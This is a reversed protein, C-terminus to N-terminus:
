TIKEQESDTLFPSTESAGTPHQENPDSRGQKKQQKSQDLLIEVLFWLGILFLLILFFWAALSLYQLYFLETMAIVSCLTPAALLFSLASGMRKSVFSCRRIKSFAPCVLISIALCMLVGRMVDIRFPITEPLMIVLSFPIAALLSRLCWSKLINRKELNNM